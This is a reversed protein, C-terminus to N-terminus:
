HTIGFTTLFSYGHQFGELLSRSSFKVTGNQSPVFIREPIIRIKPEENIFFPCNIRRLSKNHTRVEWRISVASVIGFWVRSSFPLFGLPLIGM